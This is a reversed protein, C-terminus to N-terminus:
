GERKETTTPPSEPSNDDRPLLYYDLVKRAIPAATRSGSGGNEVVVALAIRPKEVPAFAVFLSHDRFKEAINEEEYKEDQRIGIVQATGTKGAIRYPSDLGM